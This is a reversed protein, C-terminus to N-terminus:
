VKSLKVTTRLECAGSESTVHVANNSPDLDNKKLWQMWEMGRKEHSADVNDALHTWCKYTWLSTLQVPCDHLQKSQRLSSAIAEVIQQCNNVGKNQGNAHPIAWKIEVNNFIRLAKKHEAALAIPVKASHVEIDENAAKVESAAQRDFERERRKKFRCPCHVNCPRFVLRYPVTEYIWGRFENYIQKNATLLGYPSNAATLREQHSIFDPFLNAYVKDRLERPLNLFDFIHHRSQSVPAVM